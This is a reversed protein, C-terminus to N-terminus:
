LSFFARKKSSFIGIKEAFSPLFFTQVCSNKDQGYVKGHAFTNKGTVGGKRVERILKM